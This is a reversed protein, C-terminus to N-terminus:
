KLNSVLIRFSDGTWHDTFPPAKAIGLGTATLVSSKFVRCVGAESQQSACYIPLAWQIPQGFINQKSDQAGPATLLRSM